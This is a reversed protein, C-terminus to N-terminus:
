RSAPAEGGYGWQPGVTGWVGRGTGEARALPLGKSVGLYMSTVAAACWEVLVTPHHAPWDDVWGM